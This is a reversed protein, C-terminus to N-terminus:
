SECLRGHPKSLEEEEVKCLSNTVQALRVMLAEVSPTTLRGQLEVLTLVAILLAARATRSILGATIEILGGLLLGEGRSHIM